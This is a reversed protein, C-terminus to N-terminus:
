LEILNELHNENAFGVVDNITFDEKAVNKLNIKWNESLGSKSLFLKKSNSVAFINLNINKRKLIDEKSKLIQEILTGGVLGVGFIAININTSVGFIQGHIVNVAKHLDNDELM